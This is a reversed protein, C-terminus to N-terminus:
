WPVPPVEVKGLYHFRRQRVCQGLWREVSITSYPIYLGLRCVKPVKYETM